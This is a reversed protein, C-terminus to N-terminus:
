FDVGIGISATVFPWAFRAQDTFVAVAPRPTLELASLEAGLLLSRSLRLAAELGVGGAFSTIEANQARLPVGHAASPPNVEGRADLHYIGATLTPRLEFAASDFAAGLVRALALEQRLSASGLSAKYTAGVAPGAVLVGLGVRDLIRYSVALSPAYGPGFRETVGLLAARADLRFRAAPARAFREVAVPVPKSDVGIVEPPPRQDASFERLSSRLLDAARVALVNPADPGQSLALTRLSIKGTVRDAICVEAAPAGIRRTLSIGAFAGAKKALEALAQPSNASPDLEVVSAEFGQLTLEARLRNFAESLLEDPGPPRVLLVTQAFATPTLLFLALALAAGCLAHGRQM